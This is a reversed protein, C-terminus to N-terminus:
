VRFPGRIEFTTGRGSGARGRQSSFILRDGAPTFAPGTIESGEHDHLELFPTGTAEPTILVLKMGGGDEAVYLDGSRSVVINDVSRLPSGQARDVAYICAITERAPDHTWIRKDGKTAFYVLGADYWCGEGGRFATTRAATLPNLAAPLWKEVRTWTVTGSLRESDSWSVRAAELQGGQLDPYRDPVFRYFRGNPRDETLYVRRGVPDVAAAEHAFRGLDRLQRAPRGDLYCEFVRGGDWEECSL